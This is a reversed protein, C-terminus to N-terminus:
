FFELSTVLADTSALGNLVIVHGDGFDLTPTGDPQQGEFQSIMQQRSLGGGWLDSNLWLIDIGPTFDTVTMEGITPAFVFVDAGAGGTLTDNGGNGHLTDNGIGGFVLDDGFRIQANDFWVDNGTGLFATDRGNGGVVTDNGNGGNLTDDQDGGFLRDFGNRGLVLDTGRQGHFADNGGGGGITDNGDNGFVTDNGAPGVQATDVFLDDGGGMFVLDRGNGGHVTDNGTGGCLTDYGAGGSLLDDGAHGVISDSGNQGSLDDNGAAGLLTDNGSGGFVTDWGFGVDTYLDDDDGLDARDNGLGGRVTDNGGGSLLTDDADTGIILNPQSLVIAPDDRLQFNAAGLASGSQSDHFVDIRTGDPFTIRSVNSYPKGISNLVANMDAFGSRELVIVETNLDFDFLMVTGDGVQVQFMDVGAGGWLTDNGSGGLLTDNGAGGQIWDDGGLGDILDDQDSGFVLPDDGETTLAPTSGQRTFGDIEYGIDALMALDVVSPLLRMGSMVNPDLLVSDGAFGEVVHGGNNTVPIGRGNNVTRANAGSFLHNIILNDFAPATGFGLVHGIEHLAVTFFDYLGFPIPETLDFSWDIGTDFSITGAWPEFNTVAGTGRFDPSVRQEYIDGALDVGDYGGVALPGSLDGGGVFILVDVIAETLTVTELAARRSPDQVTFTAGAPVDTFEDQIVNEWIAGVADLAARRVPDSFFGTHDFRYDFKIQFAM